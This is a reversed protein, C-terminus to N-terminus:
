YFVQFCTISMTHRGELRRPFMINCARCKCRCQGIFYAVDFLLPYAVQVVPYLLYFIPHVVFLGLAVNGPQLCFQVRKELFLVLCHPAVEVQWSFRCSRPQARCAMLPEAPAVVNALGHRCSVFFILPPSRVRLRGHRWPQRRVCVVPVDQCRKGVHVHDWVFRMKVKTHGANSSTALTTAM